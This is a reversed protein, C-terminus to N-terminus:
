LREIERSPPLAGHADLVGGTVHKWVGPSSLFEEHPTALVGFDLAGLDTTGWEMFPYPLSDTMQSVHPDILFVQCGLRSLSDAIKIGPSERVDSVNAKYAVGFVGVRSGNLARGRSNALTLLRQAVYGPMRDNVESALDIFRSPRSLSTEIKWALYAPDIPICHGGVGPGPSFSQFGFPKTSAAEIVEWIDVGLEHASIALDNVLAINVHRYTNELLKTLEAVELSSVPVVREIIRSYFTRARETSHADLGGVVKPTNRLGWVPNGPDVREPSFAVSFDPGARLGSEAELLPVVVDRTTGPYSTSELIVLGGPELASGVARTSEVVASLDPRKDPTLPTPVTIIAIEWSGGAPYQTMFSLTAQDAHEESLKRVVEDAIDVGVVAFGSAAASLALPLGVYGLGAVLM